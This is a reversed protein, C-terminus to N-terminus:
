PSRTNLSRRRTEGKLAEQLALLADEEAKNLNKMKQVKEPSFGYLEPIFKAKECCGL